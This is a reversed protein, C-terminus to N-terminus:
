FKNQLIVIREIRKMRKSKKKQASYDGPIKALTIRSTYSLGRKKQLSRDRFLGRRTKPSNFFGSWMKFICDPKRSKMLDHLVHGSPTA